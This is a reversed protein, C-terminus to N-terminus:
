RYGQTIDSVPSGRWELEKHMDHSYGRFDKKIVIASTMISGDVVASFQYNHAKRIDESETLTEPVVRAPNDIVKQLEL